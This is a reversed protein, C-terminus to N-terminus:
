IKGQQNFDGIADHVRMWDSLMHIYPTQAHNSTYIQLFIEIWNNTLLKVQDPDLGKRSIMREIYYFDKWIKQIENKFELRPFREDIDIKELIVLIEQGTFDRTIGGSRDNVFAHNDVNIKCEQNLFSLWKNLYIHKVNICKYGDYNDILALDKILRKLLVDFIRLRLHM